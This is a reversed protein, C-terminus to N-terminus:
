HLTSRPGHPNSLRCATPPILVKRSQIRTAATSSSPNTPPFRPRSEEDIQMATDEPQKQSPSSLTIPEPLTTIEVDENNELDDDLTNPLPIEAASDGVLLDPKRQLATPAPM